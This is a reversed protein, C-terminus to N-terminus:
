GSSREYIAIRTLFEDFSGAILYAHSMKYHVHGEEDEDEVEVAEHDWFYVCGPKHELSLSFIDSDGAIPLQGKPLYPLTNEVAFTLSRPEAKGYLGLLFGVAVNAIYPHGPIAIFFPDPIGGNQTLLFERFDAPLKTGLQNELQEVQSETAKRKGKPRSIKLRSPDVRVYGKSLKQGLLRETDAAADTATPFSKQTERGTTGLRGYRITQEKGRQTCNWFKRSKGDDFFCRASIM